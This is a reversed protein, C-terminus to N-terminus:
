ILNYTGTQKESLYFFISILLSATAFLGFTANQAHQRALKETIYVIRSGENTTTEEHSQRWASTLNSVGPIALDETYRM